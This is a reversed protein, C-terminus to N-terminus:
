SDWPVDKSRQGVNYAEGQTLLNLLYRSIKESSATCVRISKGCSERDILWTNASTTKYLVFSIPKPSEM